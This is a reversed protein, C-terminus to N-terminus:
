PKRGLFSHVIGRQWGDMAETHVEVFGAQRMREQLRAVGDFELVSRRLYRFIRSSRTVLAGLPIVVSWTVLNWTIRSRLSDAVSYEHLCLSGGPRLLENLRRLCTDPDPVNRLGYAMLIAHYPGEAGARRPDMADGQLWTVGDLAKKRSAFDLMGQSADLGTITATPHARRLALTSLGTGCCLDLVHGNEPVQLRSASWQLHKQYGPNMSSLRDYGSAIRDFEGPVAQKPLEVATPHVTVM